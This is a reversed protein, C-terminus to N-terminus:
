AGEVLLQGCANALWGAPSIIPSIPMADGATNMAIMVAGTGKTAGPNYVADLYSHVNVVVVHTPDVPCLTPPLEGTLQTVFHSCGEDVCRIRWQTREGALNTM